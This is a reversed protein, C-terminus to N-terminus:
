PFIKESVTVTNKGQLNSVYMATDAAKILANRMIHIDTNKRVNKRFSAVGM